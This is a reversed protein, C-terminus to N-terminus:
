FLSVSFLNRCLDDKVMALLSAHKGIADAGVEFACGLLTLGVHIMMETNQKDMPNILSILFRFLERICGLGYPQLRIQSETENESIDSTFRVGQPNVYDQNQPETESKENEDNHVSSELSEQGSQSSEVNIVCSPEFSESNPIEGEASPVEGEASPIEGDPSPIEEKTEVGNTSTETQEESVFEPQQKREQHLDGQMDLINNSEPNTEPPKLKENEESKVVEQNQKAVKKHQYKTKRRQKSSTPDVSGKNMKFKKVHSSM